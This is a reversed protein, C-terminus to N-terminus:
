PNCYQCQAPDAFEVEYPFLKEHRFNCNKCRYIEARILSTPFSCLGCPLGRLQEIVDFGPFSCNPCHRDLKQILNKTAKEIVNMRKPNYMARMDTELHATGDSSHKLTFEVLDLLQEKQTIGKFIEDHNQTNKSYMVVLAHEPFGANQAFNLAQELTQVTSQAFNTETSLEQGIIELQHVTDLFLVIELDCSIYPFASHPFFAGESAIALTEGTLELAERAKLRAAELQTGMRAIDRTFTGFRDTDFDPPVVVNVGLETALIPAIVREKQHKTALIGVRDEFWSNPTM